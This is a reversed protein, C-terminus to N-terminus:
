AATLSPSGMAMQVAGVSAAPPLATGAPASVAQGPPSVDTLSRLKNGPTDAKPVPLRIQDTSRSASECQRGMVCCPHKKSSPLPQHIVSPAAKNLIQGMGQKHSSGCARRCVSVRSVPESIAPDLSSSRAPSRVGKQLGCEDPCRPALSLSAPRSRCYQGLPDAQM